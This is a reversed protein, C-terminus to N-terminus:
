RRKNPKRQNPLRIEGTAVSVAILAGAILLFLLWSQTIAGIVAAVGIAGAAHSANLKDRSTHTM